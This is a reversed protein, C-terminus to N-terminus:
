VTSIGAGVKQKGQDFSRYVIGKSLAIGIITLYPFAFNSGKGRQICHLHSQAVCKPM